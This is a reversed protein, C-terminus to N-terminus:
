KGNLEALDKSFKSARDTTVGDIGIKQMRKVNNFTNVTWVYFDLGANKVEQVYLAGLLDSEGVDVGSAGIEKCTAIAEAPSVNLKGNKMELKYLWLSKYGKVQANFSKIAKKYFSILLIQEKKLGTEKRAKEVNEAYTPSVNKMELVLVGDKPVIAMVERLTPLKVFKFKKQWKANNALNLTKINEANLDAILLNSGTFAKLEGNGHVCVIEGSKTEFFDGEVYKIGNKWAISFAELSNQPALTNEGRHAVIEMASLNSLGFLSVLVFLKAVIKINSVCTFM